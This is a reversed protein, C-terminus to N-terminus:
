VDVIRGRPRSKADPQTAEARATSIIGQLPVFQDLTLGVRFRFDEASKFPGDAERLQVVKRAIDDTMGPLTLLADVSVLNIDLVYTGDLEQRYESNEAKEPPPPEIFLPRLRACSQPTLGMKEAFHDFSRYGGLQERLAVAQRARARGMDPLLAFDRESLTNPDFLLERRPETAEYAGAPDPEDAPLAPEEHHHGEAAERRLRTRQRLAEREDELEALRELYEGRTRCAHIFSVILALAMAYRLQGALAGTKAFWLMFAPIGYAFGWGIWRPNMVRLGTYVFPLWYFWVTLVSLLYWSQAREWKLSRGTNGLREEHHHEM